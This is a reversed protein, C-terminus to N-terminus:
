RFSMTISAIKLSTPMCCIIDMSQVLEKRLSQFYGLIVFEPFM